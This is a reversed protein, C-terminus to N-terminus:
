MVPRKRGSLAISTMSSAPARARMLVIVRGGSTFSISVSISSIRTSFSAAILAWSKSFAAAQAVLFLLRLFLELANQGFPALLAFFLFHEHGLVVHHVDDRLPGANRELSHLLLFGRFQERHFGFEFCRTMPWSSATVAMLLARRRERASRFSGFRGIPENTKRPGVPTPLVKRARVSASNMNPSESASMWISMDSYM